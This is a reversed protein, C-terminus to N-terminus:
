RLREAKRVHMPVPSLSVAVNAENQLRRYKGELEQYKSPNRVKLDEFDRNIKESIGRHTM